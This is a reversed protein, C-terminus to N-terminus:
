LADESYNSRLAWIEGIFLRAEELASDNALDYKELVRQVWKLGHGGESTYCRELEGNSEDSFTISKFRVAPVRNEAEGRSTSPEERKLQDGTM